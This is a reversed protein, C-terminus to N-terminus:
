PVVDIAAVEITMNGAPDVARVRVTYTHPAPVRNGTFDDGNWTRSYRGAPVDLAGLYRIVRNGDLIEVETRAQESQDYMITLPGGRLRYPVPDLNIGVRPPITDVLITLNGGPSGGTNGARDTAEFAYTYTGPPVLSGTEDRGDWVAVQPDTDVNNMKLVHVLAGVADLILIYVHAAAENLQYSFSMGHTGGAVFPEPAHGVASIIPATRDITIHQGSFQSNGAEDTATAVLSITQEPLPDLDLSGLWGTVHTLQALNHPTPRQEGAGKYFATIILERVEGGAGLADTAEIEIPLTGGQLYTRGAPAVIRVDPAVRDLGAIWGTGTGINGANDIARVDVFLESPRDRSVQDPIQSVTWPVIYIGNLGGVTATGVEYSQLRGSTDRYRAAFQVEHIGAPDLAQAQLMLGGTARIWSPATPNPSPYVVTIAPPTHDITVNTVESLDARNGQRDYATARVSVIQEPLDSIAWIVTFQNQSTGVGPVRLLGRDTQLAFEVRDVGSQTDTIEAAFTMRSGHFSGSVPQTIRGTPPTTEVNLGIRHINSEISGGFSNSVFEVWVEVNEQTPVNTIDWITDFGQSASRSAITHVRQGQGDGRDYRAKYFVFSIPHGGRYLEMSLPVSGWWSSGTAPQVLFGARLVMSTMRGSVMYFASAFLDNDRGDFRIANLWLPGGFTQESLLSYGTEWPRTLSLVPDSTSPIQQETLVGLGVLVDYIPLLGEVYILPQIDIIEDPDGWSSLWIGALEFLNFEFGQRIRAVIDNITQPNLLNLPTNEAESQLISNLRDIFEDILDEITGFPTADSELAIIVAGLLTIHDAAPVEGFHIVGIDPPIDVTDGRQLGSGLEVLRRSWLINTTGPEGLRTTFGVVILYPEDGGSDEAVVVNLQELQLVWNGSLYM